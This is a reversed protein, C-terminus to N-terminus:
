MAPEFSLPLDNAGLLNVPPEIHRCYHKLFTSSSRWNARALIDDLPVNARSLDSNVASRLSGASAIIGAENFATTIWKAIVAKSAAKVMGRSSIFLAPIELSGCRLHRQELFIDVWAVINWLPENPITSKSQGTHVFIQMRAHQGRHNSLSHKLVLIRRSKTKHFRCM